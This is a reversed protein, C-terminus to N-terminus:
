NEKSKLPRIQKSYRSINMVIGAELLTIFLATGGHSIFPLPIGTLPLVGIMGGINVFAQSVILIVIGISLLRGFEDPAGSGIKLGYLGFLVFTLMIASGGVFGFEEAAVAFVSDGVPEPLYQFKQVSQGFGRGWVGGSGVAILSQRLQYSTTLTNEAPKLMSTIRQMVYPRMFALGALCVVGFILITLIHKWKAGASLYMALASFVIVAFTDTDPQALLVIGVISVLIIFPLLGWNFTGIKQKFASGWAAFYVIFGLKLLESPQFTIIGLDIWRNAGGHPLSLQPIFVLLTILISFIFIFISFKKWIHYDIRATLLCAISGLFLGLFLQSFAVSSFKLPNQALIGLSASSFIFFGGVALLITLLM